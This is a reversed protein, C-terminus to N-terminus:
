LVSGSERQKEESKWAWVRKWTTSQLSQRWCITTYLILEWQCPSSSPPFAYPPASRLSEFSYFWILHSPHSRSLPYAPPHPRGPRMFAPSTILHTRDIRDRNNISKLKDCPILLTTPSSVAVLCSKIPQFKMNIHVFCLTCCEQGSVSTQM